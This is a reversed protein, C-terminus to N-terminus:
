DWPDKDGWIKKFRLPKKESKVPEAPEPAESVASIATDDETPSDLYAKPLGCLPCIEDNRPHEKKCRPCTIHASNGPVYYPNTTKAPVPEPLVSSCDYFEVKRCKPCIYLDLEPGEDCFFVSRPDTTFDKRMKFVMPTGCRLCDLSRTNADM